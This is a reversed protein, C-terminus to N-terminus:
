FRFAIGVSLMEIDAGEFDYIEYEGRLQLSGIEFSAGLGYAMDTGDDSISDFGDIGAEVDWSIYGLKGFVDIPGVEIGATGWVNLGTTEFSIGNIGPVGTVPIEPEGLNVYGGEIGLDLVPLDFKYGLFVKYAADDEDISSPLQPIGTNDIGGDITANGISGGAYLGGDASAALPAGLLLCAALGAM